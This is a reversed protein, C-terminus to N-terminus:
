FERRRVFIKPGQGSLNMVFIKGDKGIGALKSADYTLAWSTAAPVAIGTSQQLSSTNMSEFFYSSGAQQIWAAEEHGNLLVPKWYVVSVSPAGQFYFGFPTEAQAQVSLFDLGATIGLAASREIGFFLDQAESSDGPAPTVTNGSTSHSGESSVSPPTSAGSGSSSGAPQVGVTGSMCGSLSIMFAVTLIRKM